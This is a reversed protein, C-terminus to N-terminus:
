NTLGPENSRRRGPIAQGSINRGLRQEIQAFLADVQAEDLVDARVALDRGGVTSACAELAAADADRIMCRAGAEVLRRTIVLGIGSAGATVLARQGALSTSM